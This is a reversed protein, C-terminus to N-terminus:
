KVELIHYSSPPTQSASLKLLIGHHTKVIVLLSVTRTSLGYVQGAAIHEGQVKQCLDEKQQPFILHGSPDAVHAEVHEWIWLEVPLRVAGSGLYRLWFYVTVLCFPAFPCISDPEPTIFPNQYPHSFSLLKEQLDVHHAVDPLQFLCFIGM